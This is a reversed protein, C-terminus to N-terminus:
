ESSICLTNFDTLCLNRKQLLGFRKLFDDFLNHTELVIGDDNRVLIGAGMADKGFREHFAKLADRLTHQWREIHPKILNRTASHIRAMSTLYERVFPKVDVHGDAQVRELEAFIRAKIRKTEKLDSLNLLAGCTHEIIHRKNRQVSTASYTMQHVPLSQHQILNRLEEMVRYGLSNDYEASCNGCLQKFEASQDGLLRSLDYKIQDVFLRGASVLNALRRNVGYLQGTGSVWDFDAFLANRLSLGLLEQEFEAYNDMLLNFKEEMGLTIFLSAISDKIAEFQEKALEISDKQGLTLLTLEYRM